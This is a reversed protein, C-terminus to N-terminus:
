AHLYLIQQGQGTEQQGTAHRARRRDTCRWRTWGDGLDLGHHLGVDAIRHYDVLNLVGPVAVCQGGVLDDRQFIAADAIRNQVSQDSGLRGNLGGGPDDLLAWNNIRIHINIRPRIPAPPRAIIASVMMPM